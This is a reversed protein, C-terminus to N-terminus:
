KQYSDTLTLARLRKVGDIEEIINSVSQPLLDQWKEGDIMRRRVETSSYRERHFMKVTKVKFGHEKFLRVTLPDNSYVVQFPPSYSQVMSVWVSHMTSDPVSILYYKSSNVGAEKLAERLMMVREGATFPNDLDHSKQASGIVIVLEASKASIAKIVEIHGLHLPQFRGVFLARLM